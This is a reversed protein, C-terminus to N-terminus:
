SEGSETKGNGHGLTNSLFPEELCDLITVQILHPLAHRLVLGMDLRRLNGIDVESIVLAEGGKVQDGNVAQSVNGDKKEGFPQSCGRGRREM